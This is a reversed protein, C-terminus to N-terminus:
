SYQSESEDQPEIMRSLSIHQTMLSLIGAGLTTGLIGIYLIFIFVSGPGELQGPPLNLLGLAAAVAAQFNGFHGPGTPILIGVALMTMVTFGGVISLEVECAVALLWMGCGNIGWYAITMLVFPILHRKDPLASLGELFTRLVGIGKSVVTPSFRMGHREVFSIGVEGKWLLVLLVALAVVFIVLTLLGVYRAWAQSSQDLPLLMLCLTLLGSLLLGDLIREIAITGFAASM